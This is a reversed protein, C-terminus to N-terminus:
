FANHGEHADEVQHPEGHQRTIEYAQAGCIFRNSHRKNGADSDNM